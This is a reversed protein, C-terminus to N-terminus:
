MTPERENHAPPPPPSAGDEPRFLTYRATGKTGDVEQRAEAEGFWEDFGVQVIIGDDCEREITEGPDLARADLIRHPTEQSGDPRPAHESVFFIIAADTDAYAEEDTDLPRGELVTVHVPEELGNELIIRM